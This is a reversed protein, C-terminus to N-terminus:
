GHFRAAIRSDAEQHAESGDLRSCRREALLDIVRRLSKFCWGDRRHPLCALLDFMQLVDCGLDAPMVDWLRRELAQRYAEQRGTIGIM